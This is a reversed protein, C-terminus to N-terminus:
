SNLYPVFCSVTYYISRFCNFLSQVIYSFKRVFFYSLYRLKTTNVGYNVKLYM